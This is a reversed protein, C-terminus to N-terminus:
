ACKGLDILFTSRKKNFVLEFNKTLRFPYVFESELSQRKRLYRPQLLEIMSGARQAHSRSKKRSIAAREDSYCFKDDLELSSKFPRLQVNGVVGTSAHITIVIM